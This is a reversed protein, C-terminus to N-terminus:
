IAPLILQSKPHPWPPPFRVIVKLRKIFVFVLPVCRRGGWGSIGSLNYSGLGRHGLPKKNEGGWYMVLFTESRGGRLYLRGGGGWVCVQYYIVRGKGKMPLDVQIIQKSPYVSFFFLFYIKHLFPYQYVFKISVLLCVIKSCHQVM